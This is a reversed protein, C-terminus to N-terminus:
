YYNQLQFLHLHWKGNKNDYNQVKVNQADKKNQYM